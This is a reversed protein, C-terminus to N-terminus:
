ADPPQAAVDAIASFLPLLEQMAYGVRTGPWTLLTGDIPVIRGPTVGAAVHAVALAERLADAQAPTFPFPVDPVLVIDPRAAVIDELTVTPYRDPLNGFVNQGGCVRLLDHMYTTENATQWPDYWIPAFVRVPKLTRAIGSVWDQTQEITRVRTVMSPEEFVDMITWLLNLADQVTNPQTAWVPIGAKQIAEADERRNVESNMLVLDPQLDIIKGIDPTKPGGMRPVHAVGSAPYKCYDTIGVVRQGLNLDFLSETMSPVLSVVRRPVTATPHDFQFDYSFTEDTM